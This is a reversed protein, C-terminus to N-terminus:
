THQKGAQTPLGLFYIIYSAVVKTHNSREMKQPPNSYGMGMPKRKQGRRSLPGVGATCPKATCSPGSSNVAALQSGGPSVTSPLYGPGGQM